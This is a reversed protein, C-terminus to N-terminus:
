WGINASIQLYEIINQIKDSFLTLHAVPRVTSSMNINQGCPLLATILLSFNFEPWSRFIQSTEKAFSLTNIEVSYKRIFGDGGIMDPKSYPREELSVFGRLLLQLSMKHRMKAM